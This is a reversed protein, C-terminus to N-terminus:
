AYKRLKLSAVGLGLIGLLVAGPLPVVDPTYTAMYIEFVGKGGFDWGDWVITTGSIDPATFMNDQPSLSYCNNAGTVLGGFNTRLYGIGNYEMWVVNTGSVAPNVGSGSLQGAFNSYVGGFYEGRQWVVNTGSVDPSRDGLGSNTLQGVFNSYINGDGTWVVNTGSVAPGLSQGGGLIGTNGLLGAFNSYVGFGGEQTWGWWVVNSESIDPLRDHEYVSSTLQGAFNSYIAQHGYSNIGQWAVNTGSIVPGSSLFGANTANTNGLKGAFNSYVAWNSGDWGYWVVNTGSIHPYYNNTTTDTLQTITWSGDAFTVSSMMVDLFVMALIRAVCDKRTGKPRKMEIEGGNWVLAPARRHGIKLHQEPNSTFAGINGM